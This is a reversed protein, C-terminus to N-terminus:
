KEDQLKKRKEVVKDIVKQNDTILEYPLFYFSIQDKNQNNTIISKFYMDPKLEPIKLVYTDSLDIYPTGSGTQMPGYDLWKHTTNILVHVIGSGYTYVSYSDVVGDNIKKNVM